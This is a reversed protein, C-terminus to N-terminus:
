VQDRRHPCFEWPGSHFESSGQEPLPRPPSCEGLMATALWPAGTQEVTEGNILDRLLREGPVWRIENRPSLRHLLCDGTTPVPIAGVRADPSCGWFPDNSCLESAETSTQRSASSTPKWFPLHQERLPTSTFPLPPFLPILPSFGPECMYSPPSSGPFYSTLPVHPHPHKAPLSPGGLCWRWAEETGSSTGQSRDGKPDGRGMQM